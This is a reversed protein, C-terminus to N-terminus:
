ANWIKKIEYLIITSRLTMKILYVNKNIEKKLIKLIWIKLIWLM